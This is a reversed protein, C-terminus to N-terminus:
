HVIMNKDVQEAWGVIGGCLNYLNTFGFKTEMAYIVASARKGSRCHMIVPVDRRLEDAHSIIEGMPIHRGGITCDQVEHDERLDILQFDEQNDMMRKLELPSVEKMSISTFM